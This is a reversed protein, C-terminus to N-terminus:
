RSRGGLPDANLPTACSQVAASFAGSWAMTGRDIEACRQCAQQLPKWSFALRTLHVANREAGEDGHRRMSRKTEDECDGLSGDV